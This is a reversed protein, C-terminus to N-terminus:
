KKIKSKLYNILFEFHEPEIIELKKIRNGSIEVIEWCGKFHDIYQTLLRYVGKSILHYNKQKNLNYDGLDLEDNLKNIFTNWVTSKVIRKILYINKIKIFRKFTEVDKDERNYNLLIHNVDNVNIDKSLEINSCIDQFLKLIEQCKRENLNNNIELKNILSSSTKIFERYEKKMNMFKNEM